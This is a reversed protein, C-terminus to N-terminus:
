QAPESDATPQVQKAQLGKPSDVLEFNVPQGQVLSKFGDKIIESYHVFVDKDANSEDNTQIFGYGKADSFWKVIGAAM